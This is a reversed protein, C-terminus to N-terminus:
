DHQLCQLLPSSLLPARWGQFEEPLADHGKLRVHVLAKELLRRPAVLAPELGLSASVGSVIQKANSLTKRFEDLDSAEPPLPLPPADRAQAVAQLIQNARARGRHRPWSELAALAQNDSPCERALDVLLDDDVVHRRPRNRRDAERERWAVLFNLAGRATDDHGARRVLRLFDRQTEDQGNRAFVRDTEERLWETRGLDDLRQSLIGHLAHLHTVDDAAYQLQADSLPRQLWNSRTQDKKLNVTLLELVLAHYGLSFGVGAFAAALQTDFVNSPGHGTALRLVTLDELASHLIKTVATDAMLTGLPSLDDIALPDVLWTADGDTIQILAPRPHYTTSREFETDVAMAADAPWGSCIDTLALPDEVYHM